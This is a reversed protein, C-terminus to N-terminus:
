WAYDTNKMWEIWSQAMKLYDGRDENKVPDAGTITRLAWFWQDPEDQELELQRILFPVVTPGMGIISLYAPCMAMETISSM